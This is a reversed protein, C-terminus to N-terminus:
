EMDSTQKVISHIVEDLKTASEKLYGALEKQKLQCKAPRYYRVLGLINTLPSRANHSVMFAVDRLRKYQDAIKESQQKLETIDTQIVVINEIEGKNVIPSLNLHIWYPHEM